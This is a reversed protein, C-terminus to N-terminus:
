CPEPPRTLRVLTGYGLPAAISFAGRHRRWISRALPLGLGYHDPKGSVFPELARELISAEMGPGDDRVDLELWGRPDLRTSVTVM